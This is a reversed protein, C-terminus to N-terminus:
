ALANVVKIGLESFADRLAGVLRNDFIYNVIDDLNMFVFNRGQSRQQDQQWGLMVPEVFPDAHGNWILIGVREDIQWRVQFTNLPVQFIEELQPRVQNWEPKKIDGCKAQYMHLVMNDGHLAAVAIDKGYEIPGHRIQAYKPVSNQFLRLLLKRLIGENTISELTRYTWIQNPGEVLRRAHQDFVKELTAGATGAILPLRDLAGLARAISTLGGPVHKSIREFGEQARDIFELLAPDEATKQFSHGSVLESRAAAPDMGTSLSLLGALVRVLLHFRRVIPHSFHPDCQSYRAAEGVLEYMRSPEREAQALLSRSRFYPSWLNQNISSWGEETVREPMVDQSFADAAEAFRQAASEPKCFGETAFRWGRQGPTSFAGRDVKQCIEWAGRYDAIRVLLRFASPIRYRFRRPTREWTTVADDVEYDRFEPLYPGGIPGVVRFGLLLRNLAHQDTTAQQTLRDALELYVGTRARELEQDFTETDHKWDYLEVSLLKLALVGEISIAPHTDACRRFDRIGQQVFELRRTSELLGWGVNMIHSMAIGAALDNGVSRWSDAARLFQEVREISPEHREFAEWFLDDAQM